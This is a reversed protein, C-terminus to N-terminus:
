ISSVFDNLFKYGALSFLINNVHYFPRLLRRILATVEKLAVTPAVVFFCLSRSFCHSM